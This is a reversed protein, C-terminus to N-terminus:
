GMNATYVAIEGHGVEMTAQSHSERPGLGRSRRVLRCGSIEWPISPEGANAVFTCCRNFEM